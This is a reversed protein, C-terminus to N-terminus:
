RNSMKENDDDNKKMGTQDKRKKTITMRKTVQKVNKNPAIIKHDASIVGFIMSLTRM